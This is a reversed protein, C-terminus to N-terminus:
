NGGALDAAAEVLESAAFPKQLLRVAPDDWALTVADADASNLLIVIPITHGAGRLGRAVTATSASHGRGGAVILDVGGLAPGRLEWPGALPRVEYGHRGLVAAILQNVAPDADAAVCVRPATM